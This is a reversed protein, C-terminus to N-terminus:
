TNNEPRENSVEPVTRWVPIRRGIVCQPLGPVAQPLGSRATVFPRGGRAAGESRGEDDVPDPDLRLCAFQSVSGRCRFGRGRSDARAAGLGTGPEFGQHSTFRAFQISSCSRFPRWCDRSAAGRASTRVRRVRGVIWGVIEANSPRSVSRGM